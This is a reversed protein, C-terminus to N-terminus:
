KHLTLLKKYIAIEDTVYKELSNYESVQKYAKLSIEKLQHDKEKLINFFSNKDKYGFDFIFGNIKHQIIENVSPIDNAIVICGRSMAELLVKPNGEFTSPLVFFKYREYLKLLSNNDLNELINLDVSFDNAADILDQKLKGQGVIDLSFNSGELLKILNKFNKQYELRGVCLIRDKERGNIEKYKTPNVWNSKILINDAKGNFDKVLNDRDKISSVIFIDSFFLCAKTLIWHFVIKLRNSSEKRTFEYLNYGTRVILPKKYLFKALLAIWSGNLQNTKFIDSKRLEDKLSFAYTFSKLLKFIKGRGPRRNKFMPIIKIGPLDASFNLDEDDGYTIFTVDVGYKKVLKQYILVERDFLGSEKWSKLSIGYTFFLVVRM